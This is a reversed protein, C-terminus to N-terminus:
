VLECNILGGSLTLCHESTTYLPHAMSYILLDSIYNHTNEIGWLVPM